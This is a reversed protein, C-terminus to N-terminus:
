NTYSFRIVVREDGDTADSLPPDTLEEIEIQSGSSGVREVEERAYEKAVLHILALRSYVSTTKAPDAVMENVRHQFDRSPIEITCWCRGAEENKM